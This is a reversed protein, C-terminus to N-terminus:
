VKLARPSPWGTLTGEKLWRWNVDSSRTEPREIASSIIREFRVKEAKDIHYSIDVLHNEDDESILPSVEAYAYGQDACVSELAQIDEYIVEGNFFEEKRINIYELLEEETKLLDGEVKVENMRYQSGETIEITIFLEGEENVSIEPGSANANMFGHNRYFTGINHVDYELATENVQGSDILWSLWGKESSQMIDKLDDDDFESNGVFKIEKIYVKEGRDIEYTLSIANDQLEEIRETIEVNYYGKKHYYEKLRNISQRVENRDFITYLKIGAEEELEDEKGKKAGEFRIRTISPKENVIFTVIKGTPSDESEISIDAFFGMKYIARLDRNLREVDFGDGRQTEVVTLIAETEIRRNGKIQISDILAVDTIQAYIADLAREAMDALQSIDDEVMSLSVPRKVRTIDFLKLNLSIKDGIETISGTVVWDADLDNGIAYLDEEELVSLFAKPHQNVVATDVVPFGKRSFRISLIEQFGRRLHDMPEATYIEFPLVAINNDGEEGQAMVPVLLCLVSLAVIKSFRTWPVAIQTGGQMTKKM